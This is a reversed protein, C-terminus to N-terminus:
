RGTVKEHLAKNLAAVTGGGNRIVSAFESRHTIRMSVGEVVVDVVKHGNATKTVRWDVRTPPGDNPSEITSEVVSEGDNNRIAGIKLTEGSYKDLREAYATVIFERFLVKFSKYEEPTARRIYRGLVFRAIGDIDFNEIFIARFKARRDKPTLSKDSLVAIARTGLAEIFAGAGETDARAGTALGFSFLVAILAFRVRM